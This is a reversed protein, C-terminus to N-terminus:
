TYLNRFKPKPPEDPPPPLPAAPPPEPLKRNSMIRTLSGINAPTYVQLLSPCGPNTYRARNNIDNNSNM